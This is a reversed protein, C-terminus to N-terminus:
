YDTTHLQKATLSMLWYLGAVANSWGLADKDVTSRGGTGKFRKNLHRNKQKGGVMAEDMEVIGGLSQENEVGCCARIRHLLFWATKQSVKLEEALDYSSIGRKLSTILYIAMFFTPLSVKTGEFLTGNKVTFYKKTEACRYKYWQCM